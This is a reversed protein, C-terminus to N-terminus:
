LESKGTSMHEAAPLGAEKAWTDFADRQAASATRYNYTFRGALRAGDYRRVEGRRVHPELVADYSAAFFYILALRAPPSASRDTVRHPTSLFRGNSLWALEDGINLLLPPASYQTAALLLVAGVRRCRDDKLAAALPPYSYRKPGIRLLANAPPESNRSSDTIVPLM